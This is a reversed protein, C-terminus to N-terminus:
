EPPPGEDLTVGAPEAQRQAAEQQRQAERMVHEVEPRIKEVWPHELPIQRQEVAIAVWIPLHASVLAFPIAGKGVIELVRRVYPFAEAAAIWADACEEAQKMTVLSSLPRGVGRLALGAVGYAEVLEQRLAALPKLPRAPAKRSARRGAATATSSAEDSM